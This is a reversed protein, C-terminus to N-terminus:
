VLSKSMMVFWVITDQIPKM